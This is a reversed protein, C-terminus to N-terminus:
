VAHVYADVGKKTIEILHPYIVTLFVISFRLFKTFNRKFNINNFNFDDWSIENNANRCLLNFKGSYNKSNFFDIASLGGFVEIINAQNKQNKAGLEFSERKRKNDGLLYFSNFLNGYDENYYYELATQTVLNFEQPNAYLMNSDDFKTIDDKSPQNFNFYPLLLLGGIKLSNSNFKQKLLRAVTPFGSAGTGGFISATIFIKFDNGNDLENKVSDLLTQWIKLSKKDENNLYQLSNTFAISGISPHGRFGQSLKQNQEEPSFLNDFLMKEEPLMNIRPFIKNLSYDIGEVPSWVFEEEEKENNFKLVEIKTSLLEFDGGVIKRMECYNNITSKVREINGNTKDPDILLIKLEKKSASDGFSMSGMACLHIIAELVKAGSGGISIIGNIM